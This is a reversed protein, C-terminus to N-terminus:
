HYFILILAKGSGMTIDKWFILPSSAVGLLPPARGINRKRTTCTHVIYEMVNNGASVLLRKELINKSLFSSLM